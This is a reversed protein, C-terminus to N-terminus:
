FKIQYIKKSEDYIFSFNKGHDDKNGIFVNFCMRRYAEILDSQDYCIKQIVQFLHMYDLNPIRHTTELLGSLSIMHVRKENLRDFRKSAFYGSCLESLMLKFENVDIGADKAKKNAEYELLGADTSDMSSRFKVIWDENDFSIHIKPRAGGSSGGYLAILDLDAHEDHHMMKYSEESLKDLEENKYSGLTKLSPEFSLGGLGNEGVYALKTLPAMKLYDIGKRALSRIMVLTGWGDPLSDNVVGYLGEFYKTKAIYIKNSLPLSFPSISFGNELWNKDYQFAIQENELSVLYGVIKHNYSVTIKKIQQNM